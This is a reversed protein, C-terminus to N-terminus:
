KKIDQLDREHVWSNFKDSYGKWKVLHEKGGGKATSERSRVIRDIHFVDPLKDVKQLHETYFTGTIEEGMQDKLTYSVRPYKYEKSAIIFIETTWNPLYGKEFIHKYKNIRVYDGVELGKRKDNKAKKLKENSLQPYLVRFVEHENETTVSVPAMGHASHVRRNYGDVLSELVEMYRYTQKHTFYRYMYTKLTRNFREVLM